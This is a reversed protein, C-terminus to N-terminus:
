KKYPPLLVVCTDSWKDHWTMREDSFFMWLYGLGFLAISPIALMFRLLSQTWNLRYGDLTQVRIRWAQMGLTQGNRTWFFAFFLFTVCFLLSNFWPGEVAEGSNLGVAVFGLIMWIALLIMFDYLMAMLRRFLPATGLIEPNNRFPRRPYASM